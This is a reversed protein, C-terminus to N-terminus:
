RSNWSGSSLLRPLEKPFVYSFELLMPHQVMNMTDEKKNMATMVYLKCGDCVSKKLQIRSILRLSVGRNTGVLSRKHGPNDIFRFMKGKCDFIAQHAELWNMCIVM